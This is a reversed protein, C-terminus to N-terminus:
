GVPAVGGLDSDPTGCPLSRLQDIELRSVREAAVVEGQVRHVRVWGIPTGATDFSVPAVEVVARSICTWKDAGGPAGAIAAARIASPRSAQAQAGAAATVAFVALGATAIFKAFLSM